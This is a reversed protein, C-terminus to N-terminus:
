NQTENLEIYIDKALALYTGSMESSNILYIRGDSTVNCAEVIVVNIPPFIGEKEKPYGASSFGSAEITVKEPLGETIDEASM